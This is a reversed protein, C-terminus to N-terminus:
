QREPCQASPESNEQEAELKAKLAKMEDSIPNWPICSLLVPHDNQEKEGDNSGDPRGKSSATDEPEQDMAYIKRQETGAFRKKLWERKLDPTHHWEHPVWGVFNNMPLGWWLQIPNIPNPGRAHFYDRRQSHRGDDVLDYVVSWNYDVLVVRPLPLGSIVPVQGSSQTSAVLMVNRSAFDQQDLGSHLMQVYAHMAMALVELRYDEPYHFADDPEEPDPDNRVMMDQMCMGDLQEILIIRVSRSTEIGRVTM